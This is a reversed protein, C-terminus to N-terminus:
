HPPNRTFAQNVCHLALQSREEFSNQIKLRKRDPDLAPAGFCDNTFDKFLRLRLATDPLHSLIEHPGFQLKSKGCLVLRNPEECGILAITFKTAIRLLTAAIKIQAFKYNFNGGASGIRLM